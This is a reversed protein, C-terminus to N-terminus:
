IEGVLFLLLLPQGSERRTFEDPCQRHSLGFSSAIQATDPRCSASHAVCPDEITLLGEDGTPDHGIDDHHRRPGVRFPTGSGETQKNDFAVSRTEFTASLEVLYPQGGM